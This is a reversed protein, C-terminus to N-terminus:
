KGIGYEIGSLEVAGWTVIKTGEAPGETYHVTEGDISTVKLTARKFTTPSLSVYVWEKGNPDYLLTTYPLIMHDGEKKAHAFELRLRRAAEESLTIRHIGDGEAVMSSHKVAAAHGGSTAKSCGQLTCAAVLLLIALNQPSNMITKRM